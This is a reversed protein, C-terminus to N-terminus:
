KTPNSHSNPELDLNSYYQDILKEKMKKFDEFTILGEERSSELKKLNKLLDDTNKNSDKLEYQSFTGDKNSVIFFKKKRGFSSPVTIIRNDGRKLPENTQLYDLTNKVDDISKGRLYPKWDDDNTKDMEHISETANLYLPWDDDNIKNLKEFIKQLFIWQPASMEFLIQEIPSLVEDNQSNKKSIMTHKIKRFDEHLYQKIISGTEERSRIFENFFDEWNSKLAEIILLNEEQMGPKKYLNFALILSNLFRKLERPNAEIADAIMKYNDEKTKPNILFTPVNNKLEPIISKEILIKIDNSQWIKIPYKIQIIKKIYDEGKIGTDKYQIDILKSITKDSIGVVYVIGNLGLLIKISELVELSKEPSCRDLDDVFVILRFNPEIDILRAIMKGIIDLGKQIVPKRIGAVFDKEDHRVASNNEQEKKSDKTSRHADFTAIGPIAIQLHYDCSNLFSFLERQIVNLFSSQDDESIGKQSEEKQIWYILREIITIMLPITAKTNEREFRWANFWTTPFKENKIDPNLDLIKKDTDSNEKSIGVLSDKVNYLFRQFRGRDNPIIETEGQKTEQFFQNQIAKMMTTKGTGWKGTIGITFQPTSNEIIEYITKSIKTFEEGPKSSPEDVLIQIKKSEESLNDESM